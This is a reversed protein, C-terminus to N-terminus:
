VPPAASPQLHEDDPEYMIQSARRHVREGPEQAAPAPVLTMNAAAAPEPTSDTQEGCHPCSMTHEVYQLDELHEFHRAGDVVDGPAAFCWEYLNGDGHFMVRAHLYPFTGLVRVACEGNAGVERLEDIVLLRPVVTVFALLPNLDLRRLIRRIAARLHKAEQRAHSDNSDIHAYWVYATPTTAPLFGCGRLEPALLAHLQERIQTSNNERGTNDRHFMAAFRDRAVRRNDEWTRVYLRVLFVVAVLVLISVICLIRTLVFYRLGYM